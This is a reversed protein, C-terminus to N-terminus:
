ASMRPIESDLIQRVLEKVQEPKNGINFLSNCKQCALILNKPHHIVNFIVWKENVEAGHIEFVLRKVEKVNARTKAIRHAIETTCNFCRERQCTFDDRRTVLERIDSPIPPFRKM